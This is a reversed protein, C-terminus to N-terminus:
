RWADPEIQLVGLVVHAGALENTEIGCTDRFPGTALRALYCGPPPPDPAASTPTFPFSQHQADNLAASLAQPSAPARLEASAGAPLPGELVHFAGEPDRVVLEEIGVGLNNSVQLAAGSKRVDLRAREAREVALVQTTAKRSPLYDGSLLTGGEHEVELRRRDSRSYPGGLPEAHVITGPGLALGAAPALGAFFQRSEVCASRHERQDLVAISYSASKVDVGQFLIGYALLSVTTVLAIAPITLLLLAPNKRKKVALFNVPGIVLAFLILLGAFARYPLRALGPIAPTL